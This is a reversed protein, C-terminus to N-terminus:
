TMDEAAASLTGPILTAVPRGSSVKSAGTVTAMRRQRVKEGHVSTGPECKACASSMGHGEREQTTVKTAPLGIGPEVGKGLRM